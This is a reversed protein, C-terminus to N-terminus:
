AKTEKDMKAGCNPCFSWKGDELWGEYIHADKCESCRLYGNLESKEWRGHPRLSEPGITPADYLLQMAGQWGRSKEYQRHHIAHSYENKCLQMLADADILRPMMKTADRFHDAEMKARAQEYLEKVSPGVKDSRIPSDDACPFSNADNIDMM